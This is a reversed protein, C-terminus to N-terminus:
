RKAIKPSKPRTKGLKEAGKLKKEIKKKRTSNTHDTRDNQICYVYITHCNKELFLNM